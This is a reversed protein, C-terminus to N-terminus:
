IIVDIAITGMGGRSNRITGTFGTTYPVDFTAVGNEDAMAYATPEDDSDSPILKAVSNVGITVKIISGKGGPTITLNSPVAAPTGDNTVYAYVPTLLWDVNALGTWYGEEYSFNEEFEGPDVITYETRVGAPSIMAYKSNPAIATGGAAPPNGSTNLYFWDFTGEPYTETDGDGGGDEAKWETLEIMEIDHGDLIEKMREPSDVLQYGLTGAKMVVPSELAPSLNGMEIVGAYSMANTFDDEPKPALYISVSTVPSEISGTEDPVFQDMNTGFPNSPMIKNIEDNGVIYMRLVSRVNTNNIVRIKGGGLDVIIINETGSAFAKPLDPARYTYNKDKLMWTAESDAVFPLPIMELFLNGAVELDFFSTEAQGEERAPITTGKLCVGYEDIKGNLGYNDYSAGLPGFNGFTANGIDFVPQQDIGETTMKSILLFNSM